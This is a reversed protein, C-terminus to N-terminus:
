NEEGQAVLCPDRNKRTSVNECSGLKKVNGTPNPQVAKEPDLESTYNCAAQM